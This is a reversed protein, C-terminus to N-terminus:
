LIFTSGLLYIFHGKIELGDQEWDDPLPWFPEAKRLAMIAAEDLERHGSTRILMVEGLSGDRQIFFRIYLDGSIGRSAMERPYEWISEIKQRLMRMYGRYRFEKVDFTFARDEPGPKRAFREITERDFLFNRSALPGVGEEAHPHRDPELSETLEPTGIEDGGDGTESSDGGDIKEPQLEKEPPHGAPEHIQAVVSTEREDEKGVTESGDGGDIKEPQLEKEPPDPRSYQEAPSEPQIPPPAVIQGPEVEPSDLRAIIDVDFVREGRDQLPHIMALVSFLLLHIVVSLLIYRNLKLRTNEKDDRKLVSLFLAFFFEGAIFLRRIGEAKERQAEPGERDAGSM